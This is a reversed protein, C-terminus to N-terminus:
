FLSKITFFIGLSYSLFLLGKNLKEPNSNGGWTLVNVLCGLTGTSFFLTSMLISSHRSVLDIKLQGLFLLSGMIIGSVIMLYKFYHRLVKIYGKRDNETMM